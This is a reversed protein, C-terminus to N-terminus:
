NPLHALVAEVQLKVVVDPYVRLMLVTPSAVDFDRVDVVQEGRVVLKGESPMEVSVTGDLPRSVGHFRVAGVLQYRGTAPLATCAQLDLVVQPHRRADIRRMLEADYLSNGSQLRNVELELHACPAPDTALRGHAITAEITGTVGMAGFTIPGVSSRADILVVSRDPVLAFGRRQPDGDGEQIGAHAGNPHVPGVLAAGREIRSTPSVSSWTTTTVHQWGGEVEAVVAEVSGTAVYRRLVRDLGDRQDKIVGMWHRLVREGEDTLYYGRRGQASPPQEPESGVLGDSELQALARYVSPRDVHGFRLQELGKALGYGHRPQELLLLLIAPLLFHRPAALEFRSHVSGTSSAARQHEIM